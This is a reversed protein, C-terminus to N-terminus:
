EAGPTYFVWGTKEVTGNAFLAPDNREFSQGALICPASLQASKVSGDPHFRVSSGAPLTGHPTELDVAITTSSLRGEADFLANMTCVVGDILAVEERLRRIRCHGTKADFTSQEVTFTELAGKEDFGVVRVNAHGRFERPERLHVMLPLGDDRFLLTDGPLFDIGDIQRTETLTEDDRM